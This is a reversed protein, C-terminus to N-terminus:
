TRAEVRREFVLLARRGHGGPTQGCRRWGAMRFCYGPNPSRVAAPDVYTYLREGPWRRWALGCADRILYSSRGAGENRFVACNVGLEPRMSRFRRWVFLARGNIALLVMKEGPGVFLVRKRADRYRRCSYHRLYIALATRNGDPVIIWPTAFDLGMQRGDTM